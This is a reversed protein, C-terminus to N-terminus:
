RKLLRIIELLNWRDEKSLENINEKNIGKETLTIVPDKAFFDVNIFGKEWLAMVNSNVENMHEKYLDPMLKQIKPTFSYLLEGNEENVAVVELGGNLILTEILKDDERSM